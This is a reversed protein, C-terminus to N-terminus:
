RRRLYWNFALTNIESPFPTPVEATGPRVVPHRLYVASCVRHHVELYRPVFAFPSMYDRPRWPTAYPKTPDIPNERAEALAERLMTADPRSLADAAATKPSFAAQYNVTQSTPYTKPPPTIGLKASLELFQADISDSLITPKSLTRRLTQRFARLDQKRKARLDASPAALISKASALLSALVEKPDKPSKPSASADPKSTLSPSTSDPNSSSSESASPPDSIKAVASRRKIRGARSEKVDKPAGTAYLVREPEVQFMDGPNLLYGPYIMKTGNVKVYGHIVFQRAQRTSSAFM